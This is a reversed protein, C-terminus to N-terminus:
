PPPVSGETSSSKGLRLRLEVCDHLPVEDEDEDHNPALSEVSKATEVRAAVAGLIEVHTNTQEEVSSPERANGLRKRATAQQGVTKEGRRGLLPIRVEGREVLVDFLEPTAVNSCRAAHVELEGLSVRAISRATACRREGAHAQATRVEL